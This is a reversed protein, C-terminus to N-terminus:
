TINKKISFLSIGVATSVNLSSFNNNGDIAVTQDCLDRTLRRLGKGEAGFVVATNEKSSSISSLPKSSKEDLGIIVFGSRKLKRIIQAMNSVQIYPIYEFAGCAAKVLSGNEM